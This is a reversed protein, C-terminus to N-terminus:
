IFAQLAALPDQRGPQVAVAERIIAVSAQGARTARAAMSAAQVGDAVRAVPAVQAARVARVPMPAAMQVQVEQLVLYDLLWM